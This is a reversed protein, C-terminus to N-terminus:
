DAAESDSCPIALHINNQTGRPGHAQVVSVILKVDFHRTSSEDTSRIDVAHVSGSRSM